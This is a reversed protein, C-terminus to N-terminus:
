AYRDVVWERFCRLFEEESLPGFTQQFAESFDWGNRICRLITALAGPRAQVCYDVFAFGVARELRGLRNPEAEFLWTLELRPNHQRDETRSGLGESAWRLASERYSELSPPPNVSDPLASSYVRERSNNGCKSLATWDSLFCKINGPRKRSPDICAFGPSLFVYEHVWFWATSNVVSSRHEAAGVILDIGLWDLTLQGFRMLISLQHEPIRFDEHSHLFELSDFCDSRSDFFFWSAGRPM